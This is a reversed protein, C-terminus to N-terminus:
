IDLACDETPHSVCTLIYGEAKEGDELGEDSGSRVKGKILRAKCEGCSGSRCSYDIEIDNAECFDLLPMTGNTLVKKGSKAFEVNINGESTEATDGLSTRVGGFSEMHLQSQDFGLDLLIEKSADMFGKPGCIYVTREHLDPAIEKLM